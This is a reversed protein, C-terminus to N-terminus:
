CFGGGLKSVLARNLKEFKKFGLGDKDKPRCLDDWAMPTFFKNSDEELFM